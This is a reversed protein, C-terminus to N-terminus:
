DREATRRPEGELTTVCQGLASVDSHLQDVGRQANQANTLATSATQQAANAAQQAQGASALAQDATAQARKADDITACGAVILTASVVALSAGNKLLNRM